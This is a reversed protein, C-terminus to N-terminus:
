WMKAFQPINTMGRSETLNPVFRKEDTVNREKSHRFAKPVTILKLSGLIPLLVM